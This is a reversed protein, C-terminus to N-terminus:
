TCLCHSARIAEQNCKIVQHNGGEDPVIAILLERRDLPADNAAVALALGVQRSTSLATGARFFLLHYMPTRPRPHHHLLLYTRREPGNMVELSGQHARILV